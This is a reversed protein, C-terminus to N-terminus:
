VQQALPLPDGTGGYTAFNLKYFHPAYQYENGGSAQGKHTSRPLGSQMDLDEMPLKEPNKELYDIRTSLAAIHEQIRKLTVGVQDDGEDCSM